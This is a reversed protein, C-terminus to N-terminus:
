CCGLKVGNANPCCDGQLKLKACAPAAACSPNTGVAPGTGLTANSKLDVTFSAVLGRHFAGVWPENTNFHTQTQMNRGFNAAVRDFGRHQFGTNKCCSNWLNTSIVSNCSSPHIECVLDRSAYERNSDALLLLKDTGISEVADRLPQLSGYGPHPFHGGVVTVTLGYVSTLSQVIAPRDNGDLCLHKSEQGSTLNWYKQNYFLRVVDQGCTTKLMAYPAPPHYDKTEFMVLNVIDLFGARFMADVSARVTVGCTDNAQAFCEWHPNWHMVSMTQAEADADPGAAGLLDDDDCQATEFSECDLPAIPKM